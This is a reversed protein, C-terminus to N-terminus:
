TRASTAAAKWSGCWSKGGETERERRGNADGREKGVRERKGAGGTLPIEGSICRVARWDACEEGSCVEEGGRQM